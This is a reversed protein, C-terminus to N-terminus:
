RMMVISNSRSRSPGRRVRVKALAPPLVQGLLSTRSKVTSKLKKMKKLTDESAMSCLKTPLLPYIAQHFYPSDLRYTDTYRNSVNPLFQFVKKPSSVITESPGEPTSRKKSKDQVKAVDPHQSARKYETEAKEQERDSTKKSTRAQTSKSTGGQKESSAEEEEDSGADFYSPLSEAALLDEATLGAPETPQIMLKLM